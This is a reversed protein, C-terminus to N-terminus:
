ADVAERSTERVSVYVEALEDRHAALAILVQDIADDDPATIIVQARVQVAKV